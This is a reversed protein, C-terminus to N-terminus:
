DLRLTLPEGIYGCQTSCTFGVEDIFDVPNYSTELMYIFGQDKLTCFWLRFLQMNIGVNFDLGLYVM